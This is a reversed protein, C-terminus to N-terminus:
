PRTIKWGVGELARQLGAEDVEYTERINNEHLAPKAGHIRYGGLSVCTGGTCSDIILLKM